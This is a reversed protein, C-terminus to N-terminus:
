SYIRRTEDTILSREGPEVAYHTVQGDQFRYGKYAHSQFLIFELTMAAGMRYAEAPTMERDKGPATLVLKEDDVTLLFNVAHRVDEIDVTKRPKTM